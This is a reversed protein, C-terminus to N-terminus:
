LLVGVEIARGCWPVSPCFAVRQNDEMYSEIHSQKYKALLTQEGQLVICALVAARYWSGLVHRGGCARARHYRQVRRQYKQRAAM